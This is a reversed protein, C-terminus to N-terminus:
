SVTKHYIVMKGFQLPVEPAIEVRHRGLCPCVLRGLYSKAGVVAWLSLLQPWM